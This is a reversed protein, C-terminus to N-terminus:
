TDRNLKHLGSPVETNITPSGDPESVPAAEVDCQYCAEATPVQEIGPGTTFAQSSLEDSQFTPTLPVAGPVAAAQQSRTQSDRRLKEDVLVKRTDPTQRSATERNLKNLNHTANESVIASSSPGAGPTLDVREGSLGKEAPRPTQVSSPLASSNQQSLDNLSFENLRSRDDGSQGLSRHAGGTLLLAAIMVKVVKKGQM